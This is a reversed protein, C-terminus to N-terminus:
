ASPHQGSMTVCCDTTPYGDARGHWSNKMVVIFLCMLQQEWQQGEDVMPDWSRPISCVSVDPFTLDPEPFGSTVLPRSTLGDSTGGDRPPPLFGRSAQSTPHACSVVRRAQALRQGGVDSCAEPGGWFHLVHSKLPDSCDRLHHLLRHYNFCSTPIRCDVRRHSSSMCNLCKDAVVTLYRPSQPRRSASLAGCRVRRQRPRVVQWGEDSISAFDPPPSSAPGRHQMRKQCRLRRSQNLGVTDSFVGGLLANRYSDSTQM